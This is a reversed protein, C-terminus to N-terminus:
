PRLAGLTLGRVLYRRIALGLALPPIMLILGLAAQPGFLTAEDARLGALYVTATEARELTLVEAIMLDSWNVIFVFLATAALGGKVQPLVAKFFAGWYTCGDVIAAEAIERPVDLLFSRVLWVVLPFTIAAYILILGQYTDWLGLQVWMFFLPIVLVIPPFVRVLLVIFPLKRGGARFRAIGYACLIGISLALVTGGVSAIVSTIIPKVAIPFTAQLFTSEDTLGLLTRFNDLTFNQPFWVVRGPPNWDVPPKFAMTVLWYLPFGFAAALAALSTWRGIECLRRAAARGRM